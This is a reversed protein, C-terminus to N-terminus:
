DTLVGAQYDRIAQEIQAQNNMVFPGHQVIPQQLPRGGALLFRCGAAAEVVLEGQGDLHLLQGQEYTKQNVDLQGQYVYLFVNLGDIQDINVSATTQIQFDVLLPETKEKHLRGSIPQRNLRFDGAIAVLTGGDFDHHPLDQKKIDQYAATQMKDEASLNLWLQFGHMKGHTQKPMESHIVGRGATMWQVGGDELLGLNGMHDTHEMKGTVMYTVTEFGRHPHPPFGAIYDNASASGFEDLLLFPDFKRGDRGAFLRQLKVGGGDVAPNGTLSEIVKFM